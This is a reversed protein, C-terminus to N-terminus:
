TYLLVQIIMRTQDKTPIKGTMKNGPETDLIEKNRLNIHGHIKMKSLHDTSNMKNVMDEVIRLKAVLAQNLEIMHHTQPTVQTEKLNEALKNLKGKRVFKSLGKWKYNRKAPGIKPMKHYMEPKTIVWKQIKLYIVRYDIRINIM